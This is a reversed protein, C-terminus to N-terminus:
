STASRAWLAGAVKRIAEANEEGLAEIVKVQADQWSPFADVLMQEGESTLELRHSRRDKTSSTELWGKSKMRTVNRSLTSADLQLLRCIMSPEPRGLGAIVALISMQSGKLGHPRLLEDYIRSIGRSILRARMAICEQGMTRACIGTQKHPKRHTM